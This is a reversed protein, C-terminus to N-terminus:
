LGRATRSLRLISLVGAAAALATALGLSVPEARSPVLHFVLAVATAGVTMGFLRALALMGGAAGSRTRPAASLMTRNNPAQFCGFGFGCLAMMLGIGLTASEPSLRSLLALGVALAAM